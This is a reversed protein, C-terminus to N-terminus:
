HIWQTAYKMYIEESIGLCNELKKIRAYQQLGYFVRSKIALEEREKNQHGM